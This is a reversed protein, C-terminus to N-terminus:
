RELRLRGTAVPGSAVDSSRPPEVVVRCTQTVGVSRAEHPTGVLSSVGRATQTARVNLASCRTRESRTEASRTPAILATPEVSLVAPEVYWLHPCILHQQRCLRSPM